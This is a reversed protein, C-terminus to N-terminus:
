TDNKLNDVKFNDLNKTMEYNYSKDNEPSLNFFCQMFFPQLLM